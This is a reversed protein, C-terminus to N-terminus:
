SPRWCTDQLVSVDLAAIFDGGVLRWARCWRTGHALSYFM